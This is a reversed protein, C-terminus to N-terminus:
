ELEMEYIKAMIVQSEGPAYHSPRVRVSAGAKLDTIKATYTIGGVYIQHDKMYFKYFVRVCPIDHGTLNTIELQGDETDEVDLFEKSMEFTDTLAVDATVSDYVQEVYSQKGAELVVASAGAALGTVKFEYTCQNGDMQIKALDVCATGTNEVLIAAVGTIEEDSGDELYIGDYSRIMQIQLASDPVAIPFEQTEYAPPVSSEEEFQPEEAPPAAPDESEHFGDEQGHVEPASVEPAPIESPAVSAAHDGWVLYGIGALAVVAVLVSVTVLMNRKKM